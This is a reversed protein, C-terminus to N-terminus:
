GQLPWRLRSWSGMLSQTLTSSGDAGHLPTCQSCSCDTCECPLQRPVTLYHSLPACAYKSGGQFHLSRLLVHEGSDRVFALRRSDLWRVVRNGDAYHRFGDGACCGISPNGDDMDEPAAPDFRPPPEILMVDTRNIEYLCVMLGRKYWTIIAMDNCLTGQDGRPWSVTSLLPAGCIRPTLTGSHFISTMWSTFDHLWALTVVQCGGNAHHGNRGRMAKAVRLQESFVLVDSDCYVAVPSQLHQLIRALLFWRVFSFLEYEYKSMTRPFAKLFRKLLASDLSRWEVFTTNSAVAAARCSEAGILITHGGSAITRAQCLTHEQYLPCESSNAYPLTVFVIPIAAHPDDRISPHDDKKASPAPVTYRTCTSCNADFEYYWTSLNGSWPYAVHYKPDPQM